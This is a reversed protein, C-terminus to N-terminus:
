TSCHVVYLFLKGHNIFNFNSKKEVKKLLGFNFAFACTFFYVIRSAHLATHSNSVSWVFLVPHNCTKPWRSHFHVSHRYKQKLLELRQGAVAGMEALVCPCPDQTGHFIGIYYTGFLLLNSIFNFIIQFITATLLTMIYSIGGRVDNKNLLVPILWKALLIYGKKSPTTIKKLFNFL